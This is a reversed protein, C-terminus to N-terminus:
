RKRLEAVMAKTCGRICKAIATDSKKPNRAIAALIKDEIGSGASPTEAAKVVRFCAVKETMRRKENWVSFEKREIDGSAIGPKLIDNVKDPACELSVAVQDRTDWGEPITYRKRNIENITKTWNNKM